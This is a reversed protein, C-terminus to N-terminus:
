YYFYGVFDLYGDANIDALEGNRIHRGLAKVESLEIQNFQGSPTRLLFFPPVSTKYYDIVLDDIGDNNLDGVGKIEPEM